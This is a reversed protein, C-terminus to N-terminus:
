GFFDEPTEAEIVVVISWCIIIDVLEHMEALCVKSIKLVVEHNHLFVYDLWMM